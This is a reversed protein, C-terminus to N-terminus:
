PLNSRYLGKKLIHDEVAAPVQFSISLGRRCRERIESSSFGILPTKVVSNKLKTAVDPGMQKRIGEISEAERGEPRSGIRVEFEQLLQDIGAWAPLQALNDLGLFLIPELPSRKERFVRLTELTFSPGGRRIEMDSVGFHTRGEIAARVMELRDTESALPRNSKHPPRGAPVFVVEEIGM